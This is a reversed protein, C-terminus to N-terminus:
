FRGVVLIQKVSGILLNELAAMDKELEIYEHSKKLAYANALLGEPISIVKM